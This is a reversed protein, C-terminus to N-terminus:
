CDVGCNRKEVMAPQSCWAADPTASSEGSWSSRSATRLTRGECRAPTPTRTPSSAAWITAPARTPNARRRWRATRTEAHIHWGVSRYSLTLSPQIFLFEDHIIPNFSHNGEYFTMRNICQANAMTREVTSANAISPGILHQVQLQMQMKSEKEQVMCINHFVM